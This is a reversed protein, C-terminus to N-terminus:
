TMRHRSGLYMRRQIHLTASIDDLHQLLHQFHSSQDTLIGTFTDGARIPDIKSQVAADNNVFYKPWSSSRSNRKGSIRTEKGHFSANVELNVVCVDIANSFAEIMYWIAAV